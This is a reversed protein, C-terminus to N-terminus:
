VHARGIKCEIEKEVNLELLRRFVLERIADADSLEADTPVAYHRCVTIVGIIILVLCPITYCLIRKM